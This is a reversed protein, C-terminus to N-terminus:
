RFHKWGPSINRPAPPKTYAPLDRPITAAETIITQNTSTAELCLLYCFLLITSIAFQVHMQLKLKLRHICLNMKHMVRCKWNVRAHLTQWMEFPFAFVIHLQIKWTKCNIVTMRFCRYCNVGKSNWNTQTAYPPHWFKFPIANWKQMQLESAKCQFGDANPSLSETVVPEVARLRSCSGSAMM